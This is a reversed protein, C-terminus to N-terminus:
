MCDLNKWLLEWESTWFCFYRSHLCHRKIRLIRIHVRLLEKLGRWLSTGQDLLGSTELVVM